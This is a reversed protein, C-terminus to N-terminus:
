PAEGEAGDGKSNKGAPTVKKAAPAAPAAPPPAVGFSGAGGAAGGAQMFAFYMENAKRAQSASYVYVSGFIKKGSAPHVASWSYVEKAGGMGLLAGTATSKKSFSSNSKFEEAENALAKLSSSQEDSKSVTILEGMFRRLAGQAAFNAKEVAVEESLDSNTMAVSQGFGVLVVEGKENARPQAGQTYLLVNPGETSAWKRISEKVESRPAEGKGLLAQHLQASKPSHIAIVAIQGKKGKLTTEFTKYAQLGSLEARAQLFLASKFDKSEIVESMVAKAEPTDKKIGQKALLEDVKSELLLKAKGLLTSDQQKAATTSPKAPNSAGGSNVSSELQTSVEARLFEALKTKANLLAEEYAQQRCQQFATDDPGCPISAAATVAWFGDTDSDLSWGKSNIFEEAQQKANETEVGQGTGSERSFEIAVGGAAPPTPPAAQSAPAAEGPAQANSHVQGISLCLGCAFASTSVVIRKQNM